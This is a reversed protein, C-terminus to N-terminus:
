KASVAARNQSKVKQILPPQQGNRTLITGVFRQYLLQIVETFLDDTQTYRYLFDNDQIGGHFIVLSCYLKVYTPTQVM